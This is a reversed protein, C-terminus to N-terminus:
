SGEAVRRQTVPIRKAAGRRRGETPGVANMLGTATSEFYATMEAEDDPSLGEERATTRLAGLMHHLWADREAIGIVFPVHRMRLRPHGREEDYTRPGGWFQILFWRLHDNAEALEERYMPRLIPDTEVGKYFRDVVRVFFAEGGVREYM